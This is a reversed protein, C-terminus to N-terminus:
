RSGSGACAAPINSYRLKRRIAGMAIIALAWGTGSLFATCSRKPLNYNREVMFLSRRSDRLQGHDACFFAWRRTFRRSFGTWCWKSLQVLCAITAIFCHLDSVLSGACGPGASGDM